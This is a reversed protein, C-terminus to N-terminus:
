ACFDPNQAIISSHYQASARISPSTIPGINRPRGTAKAKKMALRTPVQINRPPTAPSVEIGSSNAAAIPLKESTGTARNMRIPSIRNWVPTAKRAIPAM